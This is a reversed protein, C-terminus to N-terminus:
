KCFTPHSVAQVPWRPWKSEGGGWCRQGWIRHVTWRRYYERSSYRQGKSKCGAVATAVVVTVDGICQLVWRWTDGPVWTVTRARVPSSSGGVAPLTGKDEMALDLRSDTWTFNCSCRWLPLEVGTPYKILSQLVGSLCQAWGKLSPNKQKKCHEFDMWM